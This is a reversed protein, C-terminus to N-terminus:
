PRDGSPEYAIYAVNAAHVVGVSVEDDLKAYYPSLTLLHGDIKSAEIRCGNIYIYNDNFSFSWSTGDELKVEVCQDTIKTEVISAM